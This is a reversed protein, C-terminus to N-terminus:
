YLYRFGRRKKLAEEVTIGELRAAALVSEDAAAEGESDDARADLEANLKKLSQRLVWALGTSCTLAAIGIWMSERYAPGWGTKWTYSGLANGMNGFGNVLAIAAARKAPPRPVTNSVWVLILAFGAYGSALFFLAAYRPATRMSSLALLFGALVAWLWGSIHLFREGTADAHRANLLCLASAVLWPPTALLLTQTTSYGLTATISPFFNSFSLGLLGFFTIFMFLVVKRDRIALDLGAWWPANSSVSDQDASGTDEALRAQALRREAATLWKTNEPYDPLVFIAAIGVFITIGGEVFFLWRWARIGEIGELSSLVGAAMLSGFANSVLLGTYLIASRFALEKRTYWRSLLYIAGPYFAAETLLPADSLWYVLAQTSISPLGPIGILFRCIFIDLFGRTAGTLASIIGWIIVCGGIYLAPSPAKNLLLNSPIQMPCYSAYLVAIVSEYQIHSLRLDDELGRLRASTIATRDIYNM